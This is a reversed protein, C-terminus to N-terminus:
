ETLDAILNAIRKTRTQATKATTVPYLLGRRKGPTLAEWPGLAGHSLLAATVDAPMDVVDDPAPRLRIEVREGPRVGIRDILSKGAWLFIGDVVPAKTLALNVAHEAIEGEVRRAGARVLAEAVDPPLRLITYVARGWELPEIAAEFSHWVEDM